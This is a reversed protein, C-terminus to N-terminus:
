APLLKPTRTPPLTQLGARLMEELCAPTGRFRLDREDEKQFLRGMKEGASPFPDRVIAKIEAIVSEYAADLRKREPCGETKARPTASEGHPLVALDGPM